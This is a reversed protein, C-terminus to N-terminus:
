LIDACQKNETDEPRRSRIFLKIIKLLKRTFDSMVFIM